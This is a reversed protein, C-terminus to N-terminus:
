TLCTRYTSVKRGSILPLQKVLILINIHWSLSFSDNEYLGEDYKEAVNITVGFGHGLRDYVKLYLKDNFLLILKGPSQAFDIVKYNLNNDKLWSTTEPTLCDQFTNM